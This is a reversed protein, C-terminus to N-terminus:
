DFVMGSPFSRLLISATLVPATVGFACVALVTLALFAGEWLIRRVMERHSYCLCFAPPHDVGRKKYPGLRTLPSDGVM